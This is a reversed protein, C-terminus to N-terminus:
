YNRAQLAPCICKAQLAANHDLHLVADHEANDLLLSYIYFGDWVHDIDM